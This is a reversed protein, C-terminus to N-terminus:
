ILYDVEGTQGTVRVPHRTKQINAEKLSADQQPAQAFQPNQNLFGGEQRPQGHQGINLGSIQVGADTLSQHLQSLQTELLRGTAPQEASFTVSVGQPGSVMQVDIVGLEKPNLQLHMVTLRNHIRTEVHHVIQQVVEATRIKAERGSGTGAVTEVQNEQAQPAQATVAEIGPNTGQQKEAPHIKRNAPEILSSEVAAQHTQVKATEDPTVVVQVAEQRAPQVPALSKGTADAKIESTTRAHEFKGADNTSIVHQSNPKPRDEVTQIDQAQEIMSATAQPTGDALANVKSQTEIEKTNGVPLKPSSEVPMAQMEPVPRASKMTTAEEQVAPPM